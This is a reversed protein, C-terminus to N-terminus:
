MLGGELIATLGCSQEEAKGGGVGGAEGASGFQVAGM